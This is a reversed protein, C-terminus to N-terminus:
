RDTHVHEINYYIFLMRNKGNIDKIFQYRSDKFYYDLAEEMLEKQDFGM